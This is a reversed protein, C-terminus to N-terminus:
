CSAQLDEAVIRVGVPEQGAAVRVAYEIRSRSGAPLIQRRAGGAGESALGEPYAICAAAVAVTGLLRPDIGLVTVTVQAPSSIVLGQAAQEALSRQLQDQLAGETVADLAAPFGAKPQRRADAFRDLITRVTREAEQAMRKTACGYGPAGITGDHPVEVATARFTGGHNAVQATRTVYSTVTQGTKFTRQEITCDRITARPGAVDVGLVSPTSRVKTVRQFGDGFALNAQRQAEVQAIVAPVALDQLGTAPAVSATRHEDIAQLLQFYFDRLSADLEPDGQPFPDRLDAGAAPSATTDTTGAGTLDSRDRRCGVVGALVTLTLVLRAITRLTM